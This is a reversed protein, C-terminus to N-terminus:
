GNYKRLQSCTINVHNIKASTIVFDKRLKNLLGEITEGILHLDDAYLLESLLGERVLSCSCSYFTVVSIRPEVRVRIWAGYCLSIM